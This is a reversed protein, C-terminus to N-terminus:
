FVFAKVVVKGAGFYQGMTYHAMAVFLSGCFVILISPIDVFMTLSGGLVMAMFIFAIGGVMGILSALDM